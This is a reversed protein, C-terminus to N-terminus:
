VLFMKRQLVVNPVIALRQRPDKLPISRLLKITAATKPMKAKYMIRKESIAMESM